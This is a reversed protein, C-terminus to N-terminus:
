EFAGWPSGTAPPLLAEDAVSDNKPDSELAPVSLEDANPESTGNQDVEWARLAYTGRGTGVFTDRARAKKALAGVLSLRLSEREQDARYGRQQLRAIIEYVHMPEQVEHLIREAADPITLGDLAPDVVERLGTPPPRLPDVADDVAGLANIARNVKELALQLELRKRHLVGMTERVASTGLDM